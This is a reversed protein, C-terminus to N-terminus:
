QANGEKIDRLRSINLMEQVTRKGNFYGRMLRSLGKGSVKQKIAARLLAKFPLLTPDNPQFRRDLYTNSSNMGVKGDTCLWMHMGSYDKIYITASVYGFSGGGLRMDCDFRKIDGM